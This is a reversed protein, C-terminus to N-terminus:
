PNSPYLWIFDDSKGAQTQDYSVDSRQNRHGKCEGATIIAQNCETNADCASACDEITTIGDPLTVWDTTAAQYSFQILSCESRWTNGNVVWVMNHVAPCDPQPAPPDTKPYNKCAGACGVSHASNFGPADIQPLGTHDGLYCKGTRASYDVSKCATLSGCAEMCDEYTAAQQVVSTTGHRKGCTM